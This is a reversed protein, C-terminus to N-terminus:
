FEISFTIEYFIYLNKQKNYTKDQVACNRRQHITRKLFCTFMTTVQELANIKLWNLARQIPKPLAHGTRQLSVTLPVGFVAKDAISFHM